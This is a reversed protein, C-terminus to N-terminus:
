KPEDPGQPTHARAEDVLAESEAETIVDGELYVKVVTDVDTVPRWQVGDFVEIDHRTTGRFPFGDHDYYVYPAAHDALHHARGPSEWNAGGAAAWIPDYLARSQGENAAMAKDTAATPPLADLDRRKEYLAWGGNHKADALAKLHLQIEGVVGNRIRVNLNM